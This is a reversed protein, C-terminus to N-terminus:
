RASGYSQQGKARLQAKDSAGTIMRPIVTVGSYMEKSVRELVRYMETDM